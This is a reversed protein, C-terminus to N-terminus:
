RASGSGTASGSGSGSASGSSQKKSRETQTETNVQGSGTVSTSDGQRVDAEGRIPGTRAACGSGVVALAFLGIAFYPTLTPKKM